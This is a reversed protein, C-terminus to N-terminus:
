KPTVTGVFLDRTGAIIRYPLFSMFWILIAKASKKQVSGIMKRAKRGSGNAWYHKAEGVRLLDKAEEIVGPHRLAIGGDRELKELMLKKEEVFAKANNWTFSDGHVRWKGLPESVYDVKWAEGIRVFLDYEEIATFREDFWHDLKDLVNRRIIVTELSLAYNNLLDTFCWGRYPKRRSYLRNEQGASNFFVTDSYVLGVELDSFLPLQRELKEPFWIDDCDLFALFEGKAKQIALNRAKGLPTFEDAYFYRIRNDSYSEVIRRTDDTSLNDWVIIEWNSYTQELVSDIAEGLYKEANHGNMIVSVLPKDWM